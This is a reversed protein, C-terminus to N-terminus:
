IPIKDFPFPPPIEHARYANDNRYILHLRIKRAADVANECLRKFIILENQDVISRLVAARDNHLSVGAHVATDAEYVLFVAPKGRRPISPKVHRFASEDDKDIRIIIDLGRQKLIRYAGRKFCVGILHQVIVPDYIFRAHMACVQLKVILHDIKFLDAKRPIKVPVPHGILVPLLCPALQIATIQDLLMTQAIRGIFFNKCLVRQKRRHIQQMRPLNGCEALRIDIIYLAAIRQHRLLFGSQCM